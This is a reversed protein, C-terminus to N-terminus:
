LLLGDGVYKQGLTVPRQLSRQKKLHDFIDKSTIKVKCVVVTM